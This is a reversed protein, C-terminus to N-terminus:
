EQKEPPWERPNSTTWRGKSWTKIEEIKWGERLLFTLKVGWSVLKPRYRGDKSDPILLRAENLKSLEAPELGSQNCLETENLYGEYPDYDKWERLYREYELERLHTTEKEAYIARVDKWNIGPYDNQMIDALDQYLSRSSSGEQQSEYTL